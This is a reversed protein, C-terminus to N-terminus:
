VGALHLYEPKNQYKNFYKM